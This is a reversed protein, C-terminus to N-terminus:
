DAFGLLEPTGGQRSVWLGQGDIRMVKIDARLADGQRLLQEGSPHDVIAWTANGAQVRGKLVYGLSEIPPLDPSPARPQPEAPTTAPRPPQKEGFLAPWRPPPAGATPDPAPNASQPRMLDQGAAPAAALDQRGEQPGNFLQWLQYSALLALLLCAFTLLHAILRM